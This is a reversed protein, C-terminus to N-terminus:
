ALEYNIGASDWASLVAPDAQASTIIEDFGELPGIELLARRNLKTHDVLLYSHAAAAMMARKLAVVDEDPAYAGGGSVARCSVFAIDVHLGGIRKITDIGVFADKAVDYRGGLGLVSINNEAALECLRIQGRMFNTAICLPALAPLLDIIQYVTTSDDLLLTMGPQVFKLAAKALEKKESTQSSLRYEMNEEFVGAPQASVRGGRERRVVGRRELEALDRHITVLSV